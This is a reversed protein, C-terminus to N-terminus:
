IWDFFVSKAWIQSPRFLILEPPKRSYVTIREDHTLLLLITLNYRECDGLCDRNKGRNETLQKCIWQGDTTPNAGEIEVRAAQSAIAVYLNGVSSGHKQWKKRRYILLLETNIREQSSIM